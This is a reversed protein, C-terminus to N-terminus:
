AHNANSELHLAIMFLPLRTTSIIDDALDIAPMGWGGQGWCSALVKNVSAIIDRIIASLLPVQGQFM